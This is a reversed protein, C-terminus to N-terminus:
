GAPGPAADEARHWEEVYEEGVRRIAEGITRYDAEDLNALSLRISWPPGDFGSGNLAVVESQAALRFLIDAPEYQRELFAAFEPPYRRQVHLMFDFELYYGVRLPDEPLTIRLGGLLAELRDAILKMAAKRYAREEDLLDFLAFLALQIQQPQSLGATHTLAVDRSDAVLREAFTLGPVDETLSRYRKELRQKAQQPLDALARDLVTNRSTAILGQRWGTAGFYKSLSYVLITNDPVVASLSRFGDIFTAYVDDTIIILGPNDTRVIEAIRVITEDKIRVSPPNTPNVCILMKVAPDRLRELEEPTFQWSHSGDPFTGNAEILLQKLSYEPLAAIELYPTFVPTMIAVTDGPSLLENAFLTDFIYCMAATGGETAFVDIEDPDPFGEGMISALYRAAIKACHSLMAPPDMYHAGLVGDVLEHVFDDPDWGQGAAWDTVSGLLAIGPEGPRAALWTEFRRAIEHKAPQAVLDSGWSGAARAEAVAFLGLQFFAERPAAALFNPTGRGAKLLPRATRRQEETGLSILTERLEFPSLRELERIRSRGPIAPTDSM